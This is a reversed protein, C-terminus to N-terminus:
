AECNCIQLLSGFKVEMGLLLTQSAFAGLPHSKVPFTQPMHPFNFCGKARDNHQTGPAVQLCASSTPPESFQRIYLCYWETNTLYFPGPFSTHTQKRAVWWASSATTGEGAVRIVQQHLGTKPSSPSTPAPDAQGVMQSWTQHRGRWM